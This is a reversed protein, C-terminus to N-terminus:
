VGDPRRLRYARFVRSVTAGSKAYFRVPGVWSIETHAYEAIMLDRCIQGLLAQGVGAARQEPDTGMPGLWGARNVSHCGFGIARSGDADEAFVAHCCGHEIARETEPWWEPWHAEVLDQVLHVDADSIVRRVVTGEPADARFTTPLAMNVDSSFPRYGRAEALCLMETATADVGPWLYFPASGALQLEAAGEHWAWREVAALLAHGHGRRRHDPHVVLLKVFAVKHLADPEGWARIVAVAAGTGDETALVIAAEGPRGPRDPDSGPDDFCVALLEDESLEEGPLAAEVLAALAGAHSRDWTTIGVEDHAATV